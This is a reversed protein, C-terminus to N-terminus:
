GREEEVMGHSSVLELLDSVFVVEDEGLYVTAVVVDLFDSLVRGEFVVVDGVCEFFEFL